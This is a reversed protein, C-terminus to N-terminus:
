NNRGSRKFGDRVLEPYSRRKRSTKSYKELWNMDLVYKLVAAWRGEFTYGNVIFFANTAGDSIILPNVSYPKYRDLTEGSLLAEINHRLLVGQKVAHVGIPQYNHGNVDATDGAAFVSKEGKVRLTDDTLIREGAGKEFDHSLSISGPGNGVAILAIDYNEAMEPEFATNTEVKVSRKKLVNTIRASLKEPFSSLLRNSQEVVTIDPDAFSQAHSLNLALEAGAAGGGAILLKKVEGHNLRTRLSLLKDMPKVPVANQLDRFEATKSGVNILLYDYPYKEGDSAFVASEHKSISEVRAEVFRVGYRGCLEKLSIATQHWDYFGGMFQPLAGSYILYPNESILVVDLDYAKWKQGMKILPLSAHGGGVIVLKKAHKAIIM